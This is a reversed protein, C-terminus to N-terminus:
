IEGTQRTSASLLPFLRNGTPVKEHMGPLPMSAIEKLIGDHDFQLYHDPTRHYQFGRVRDPRGVVECHNRYLRQVEAIEEAFPLSQLHAPVTCRCQQVIFSRVFWPGSMFTPLLQIHPTFHSQRQKEAAARMQRTTANSANMFQVGSIDLASLMSDVFQESPAHLTSLYLDLRKLGKAINSYGMTQILQSRKIGKERMRADVLERMTQHNISPQM